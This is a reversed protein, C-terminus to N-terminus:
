FLSYYYNIAQYYLIYKNTGKFRSDDIKFFFADRWVGRPGLIKGSSVEAIKDNISDHNEDYYNEEM